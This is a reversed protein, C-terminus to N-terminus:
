TRCLSSRHQQCFGGFVGGGRRYNASALMEGAPGFGQELGASVDTQFPKSGRDVPLASARVVVRVTEAGPAPARAAEFRRRRPVLALAWFRDAHVAEVRHGFRQVLRGALMAGIGISDVRLRRVARNRMLLAPPEEQATFTTAEPTRVTRTWFVDGVKELVGPASLDRRRGVDFGASLVGGQPLAALDRALQLNQVECGQILPYSLLSTQGSSPRCLYEENWADADPVTSRV